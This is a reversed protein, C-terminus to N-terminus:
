VVKKICVQIKFESFCSPITLYCYEPTHEQWKSYVEPVTEVSLCTKMCKVTLQYVFADKFMSPGVCDVSFVRGHGQIVHNLIFIVGENQEQLIVHKQSREVGLLFINDFTFLTASSSHHSSFHNYLNKFSNAFGCSPAPCFCPTHPCTNEHESKKHYLFTEKCGFRKNKCKIRLSETVKEMARCRIFGIPSCCSPCKNNAKVCCSSCAIHGHECQYIPACLPHVCIPCDLMDPDTLVVSIVEGKNNFASESCLDSDYDSFTLVVPIAEPKDDFLGGLDWTSASVSDSDM